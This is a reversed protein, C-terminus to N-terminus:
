VGGPVTPASTWVAQDGPRIDLSAILIRAASLDLGVILRTAHWLRQRTTATHQPVTPPRGPSSASVARTAIALWRLWRALSDGCLDPGAESSDISGLLAGRARLVRSRAVRRALRSLRVPADVRTPDARLDDRLARAEAGAHHWGAAVLLAALADLAAVARASDTVIADGGLNDAVAPDDLAPDDLAPDDLSHDLIQAHAAQIIDGQLQTHIVLGAPWGPLFPGLPVHLVDLKLGDRDEAREAMMLGGPMEMEGMSGMDHAANAAAPSTDASHGAHVDRPQQDNGMEHGGPHGGHMGSDGVDDGHGTHEVGSQHPAAVVCEPSPVDPIIASDHCDQDAAPVVRVVATARSDAPGAPLTWTDARARADARQTSIDALVEAAVAFADDMDDAMAVHVRARPGPLQAWLVDIARTLQPGPRGAVLLVDADAASTAFVAHRRVAAVEAAIRLDAYGPVAAILVHPRASAATVFWSGARGTMGM